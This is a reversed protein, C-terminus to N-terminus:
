RRLRPGTQPLPKFRRHQEQAASGVRLSALSLEMLPSENAIVPQASTARFVLAVQYPGEAQGPERPYFYVCGGPQKPAALLEFYEYHVMHGALVGGADRPKGKEGASAERLGLSRIAQWVSQRFSDTGEKPKAIAVLVEQINDQINANPNTSPYRYLIGVPQADPTARIGKPPRFFFDKDPIADKDKENKAPLELPGALNQNEDDLYKLRKQEFGMQQEYHELGCGSGLPLLAAAFVLLALHRGDRGFRHCRFRQAM